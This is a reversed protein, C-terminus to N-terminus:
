LVCVAILKSFIRFFAMTSILPVENGKPTLVSYMYTNSTNFLLKIITTEGMGYTNDYNSPIIIITLVM